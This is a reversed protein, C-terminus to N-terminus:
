SGGQADLVAALGRTQLRHVIASVPVGQNYRTPGDSAGGFHHIAVLNWHLDFCPSGSTGSATNTSYRVRTGAGNVSLVGRTDITLQIPREGPYQIIALPMGQRISPPTAPLPIWGRASGGPRVAEDGIRRELRVLAHDLQDFTPEVAGDAEASVALPGSSDVHWQEWAPAACAVAGTSLSGNANRRYDFLCRIAQGASRAEIPRSLVHHNTLMLDPGVLFGTGVARNGVEVRCVRAMVELLRAAWIHADLEPMDPSILKEFRGGRAVMARLDDRSASGVDQWEVDPLLGYQALTDLQAAAVKARWADGIRPEAYSKYLRQMDARLPKLAAAQAVVYALREDSQFIELAFKVTDEFSAPAIRKRVNFNFHDSLFTDFSSPTFAAVFAERLPALGPGPLDRPEGGPGDPPADPPAFTM